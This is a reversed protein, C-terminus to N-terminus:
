HKLFLSIIMTIVAGIATCVGAVIATTGDRRDMRAKLGNMGVWIEARKEECGRTDDERRRNHEQLTIKIEPLADVKAGFEAMTKAMYLQHETANKRIAELIEEQRGIAKDFSDHSPCFESM